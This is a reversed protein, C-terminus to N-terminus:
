IRAFKRGLVSSQPASKTKPKIGWLSLLSQQTPELAHTPWGIIRDSAPIRRGLVTQPTEPLHRVSLSFFFFVREFQYEFWSVEMMIRFLVLISVRARLANDSGNPAM